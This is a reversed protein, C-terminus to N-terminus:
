LVVAVSPFNGLPLVGNRVASEFLYGTDATVLIGRGPIFPAETDVRDIGPRTNRSRVVVAGSPPVKFTGNSTNFTGNSTRFETGGPVLIAGNPLEVAGEPLRGAGPTPIAPNNNALQPNPSVAQQPLPGNNPEIPNNRQLAQYEPSAMIGQTIETVSVGRALLETWSELGGRDPARKLLKTYLGEVTKQYEPRIATM